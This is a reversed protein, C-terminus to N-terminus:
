DIDRVGATTIQYLAFHEPSLTPSKIVRMIRVTREEDSRRNGGRQNNSSSYSNVGKTQYHNTNSHSQATVSAWSLMFRRTVHHTWSDGLLPALTESRLGVSEVLKGHEGDDIEDNAKTNTNPSLFPKAQKHTIKTTVHNTTLVSVGTDASLRNLELGIRSLLVNRRHAATVNKSPGAYNSGSNSINSLGLTDENLVRFLFAISDVAVLRVCGSHSHSPLLLNSPSSSAISTSSSSFSSSSSSSSSSLMTTSSTPTSQPNINHHGYYPMLKMINNREEVFSHLQHALLGILQPATTIRYVHIRALIHRILSSTLHSSLLGTSDMM